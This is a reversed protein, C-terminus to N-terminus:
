RGRRASIWITIIVILFSLSVVIALLIPRSTMTDVNQEETPLIPATYNPTATVKPLPTSTPLKDQITTVVPASIKQPLIAPADTQRTNYVLIGSGAAAAHVFHLQNGLGIALASDLDNQTEAFFYMPSWQIGNWYMYKPTGDGTKSILHLIGASDVVMWPWHTQGSENPPFFSVPAIWTKGNDSSWTHFRGELSGIGRNWALHVEHGDRVVVNIWAATSQETTSRYMEHVDWTIGQNESRAYYLAEGQWNRQPVYESWVVHLFELEDVAIRPNTFSAYQPNSVAAIAIPTSWNAGYDKSALFMITQNDAAYVAYFKGDKGTVLCPAITAMQPVDLLKTDWYQPMDALSTHARSYYLSRTRGLDVWLVNLYDQDDIAVSSLSLAGNEPTVLIDNTATWANNELRRYYITNLAEPFPLDEQAGVWSAWFVHVRGQRDAVIQPTHGEPEGVEILPLSPSWGISEVTGGSQACVHAGLSSLFLPLILFVILKYYKM